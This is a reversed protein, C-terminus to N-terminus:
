SHHHLICLIPHNPPVWPWPCHWWEISRMSRGIRSYYFSHRDKATKSICGTIQRFDGIKFWGVQMQRGRLSHGRPVQSAELNSDATGIKNSEVTIPRNTFKRTQGNSTTHLRSLGNVVSLPVTYLSALEILSWVCKNNLTNSGKLISCMGQADCLTHHAHWLMRSVPMVIIHM